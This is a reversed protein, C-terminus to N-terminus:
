VKDTLILGYDTSTETVKLTSHISKSNTLSFDSYQVSISNEYPLGNSSM